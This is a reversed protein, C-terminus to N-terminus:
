DLEGLAKNVRQEIANLDLADLDYDLEEADTYKAIMELRAKLRVAVAHYYDDASGVKGGGSVDIVTVPSAASGLRSGTRTKLRGYDERVAQLLIPLDGYQRRLELFRREYEPIQEPTLSVLLQNHVMVFERTGREAALRYWAAAAVRDADTGQGVLHMYGVMYQAYKDGIPALQNRYIFYARKFNGSEYLQEAKELSRIAARDVVLAPFAPDAQAHVHGACACLLLALITLLYRNM